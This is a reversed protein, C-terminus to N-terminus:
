GKRVRVKRKGLIVLKGRWDEKSRSGLFALPLNTMEAKTMQFILIIMVGFSKSLDFRFIDGFGRDFTLLVRKTKVVAYIQRLLM